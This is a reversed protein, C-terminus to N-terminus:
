LGFVEEFSKGDRFIRSHCTKYKLGFEECWQTLTQTKGNHTFLRNSRRNNSNEKATTWRCNSPEYNGNSDIRDIQHKPTPKEGMDSYFNEFSALWRGCVTIGRGGYWKYFKDKSQYCRRKMSQWTRYIPTNTQSHTRHKDKRWCGCSKAATHNKSSKRNLESTNISKVTGCECQCIWESKGAYGIVTLRFFTKGILNIAQKPVPVSVISTISKNEAMKIGRNNSNTLSLLTNDASKQAAEIKGYTTSKIYM